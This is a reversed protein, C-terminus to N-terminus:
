PLNLASFFFLLDFVDLEFKASEWGKYSIMKIPRLNDGQTNRLVSLIKGPSRIDLSYVCGGIDGFQVLGGNEEPNGWYVTVIKESHYEHVAMAKAKKERLDWLLVSRDISSSVLSQDSDPSVSVGTIEDAHANDIVRHTTMDGSDIEWTEISKYTTGIVVKTKTCFLKLDAAWGNCIQDNVKFLCYGNSSKVKTSWLEVSSQINTVLFQFNFPFLFLFNFLSGYFLFVM